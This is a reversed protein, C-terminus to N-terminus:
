QVYIQLPTEVPNRVALPPANLDAHSQELRVLHAAVVM